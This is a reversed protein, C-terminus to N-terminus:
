LAMPLSNRRGFIVIHPIGQFQSHELKIVNRQDLIVRMRQCVTYLPKFVTNSVTQPSLSCSYIIVKDKFGHTIIIPM